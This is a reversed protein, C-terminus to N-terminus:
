RRTISSAPVDAVPAVAEAIRLVEDAERSTPALMVEEVGLEALTCLLERLETASGTFGAHKVAMDVVAEDMFSLYGRLHRAMQERGGHEALAVWFGQQFRPATDRGAERWAGNALAMFRETDGAFDPGFAFGLVGDAWTAARALAKEGQAGAFLAPGGQQVPLPGVPYQAGEVRYDGRWVERLIGVRRALEANRRYGLDAGISRYDEERGGIGLGVRLRGGSLCDITALQKAALVPDHMTLVLVNSVIELRETALACAGLTTFLEPNPYSIREGVAVSAFPGQELHRLWQRLLGRDAFGPEMTPLSIGIKMTVM